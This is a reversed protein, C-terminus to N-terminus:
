TQPFHAAANSPGGSRRANSRGSESARMEARLWRVFLRAHLARHHPPLTAANLKDLIARADPHRWNRGGATPPNLRNTLAGPSNADLERVLDLWQSLSPKRDNGGGPRALSKHENFWTKTAAAIADEPADDARAEVRNSDAAGTVGPLAADIRFRGFGEHTREGLWEGRAAREALKVVGAGSVEFVSGRRIAAAPMRWLRSTGNFGHVMVNDQLSRSLEVDDDLLAALAADDLETRWRLLDDRVLLDSTLTLLATAAVQPAPVDASWALRAVEVPAGARGVRLWRRGELVPGLKEALIKLDAASGRLEALFHTDEVIQEIAFLSADKQQPDPRGNRLRVRRAPRYPIWESSANERFVFLDDEPRKLKETSNWADFRRVTAAPAAWWPVDGAGSQPKECQLSLPAPLIEVTELNLPVAPLPLADSASVKGSTLLAAADRHGEAILWAAVAGLLTRGPVFAFSPILNDPTAIATICLPDRNRLLLVLRDKPTGINRSSGAVNTLSLKVRGAGTSRGGGLADVEQILRQLAPLDTAPLEVEGVFKTGKPVYEIVRLTDDKPARNDFAKRATASWIHSDPSDTAYLSTFVARQQKGGARGFFNEAEGDGRLRRAADRLVGEVHSAWIVPRDRRDRAILEDIGGGGSGSGPHADSLFEATLTYRVWHESM